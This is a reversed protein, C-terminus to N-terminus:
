VSTPSAVSMPVGSPRARDSRLPRGTFIRCLLPQRMVVAAFAATFATTGVLVLAFKLGVPWGTQSLATGILCVPLMHALYMPYSADALWRSLRTEQMFVRRFLSLMAGVLLWTVFTSGVQILSWSTDPSAYLNLGIDVMIAPLLWGPHISEFVRRLGQHRHVLMGFAFYPLYGLLRTTDTAGFLSV